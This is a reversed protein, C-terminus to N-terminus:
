WARVLRAEWRMSVLGVVVRRAGAELRFPIRRQDGAARVVVEGSVPGEGSARVLEVVYEGADSGLLALGEHRTSKVDQASIFARTPAGLWSVRRGAPDILAIDLDDNGGEWTAEVRLEGRLAQEASSKELVALEREARTRTQEDAAAFMDQAIWGAGIQGACRAAEALLKGDSQRMEAIAISHRCGRAPEGAWRHLRALRQHAAVDGPRVDLVSGLIRIAGERDGARAALDARATLAEPDLPDKESWREATAAARDLEGALAYLGFLEKVAGRRERNEDLAREAAAIKSAEAKAPIFRTTNIGAVREWIRRMPIMRPSPRRRTMDDDFRDGAIVSAPAAKPAPAPRSAPATAVAAPAPPGAASKAQGVGLEAPPEAYANEARKEEGAGGAPGMSGLAVGGLEEREQALEDAQGEGRSATSEIEEEGTWEPASRANNLGFAEFMAPSELVLLSTYRSAVNFRQSLAVAKQRAEASGDRELDAIRVAAYLRPVFANGSSGSARVQLPYRQEFPESGVTGRLTLTGGLEPRSLRAVVVAEGGAPITDLRAPAVETLGEPLEVRVDRLGMGYSAGLIAYAAEGLRQGPIYPLVVGGGGRALAGLADLDADAGIAVATLGGAAGPLADQVERSIHAPRIPGVTPTGDGIYVIRLALDSGVGVAARAARVAAGLDSGGEPTVGQLFRQVEAATQTGPHRLGGPLTRCTTDCALVTLQDLPDTESVVRQALAAARRYREGYMSRSADVVLAFARQAEQARRPLRPRLAIAVYGAEPGTEARMAREGREGDTAGPGGAPPPTAGPSALAHGGGAAEASGPQYAWTTVEDGRGPLAYEVVLDGSPVFDSAQMSLKEVGAEAGGRELAYGSTTVGFSPDHGRVQVDLAFRGVKSAGSPDHALPYVYRRVGGTPKVLQTYSLVVRRSGQRPIPFIRLEFRGGRQWELLAPDRWPGPVWIIEEQPLPRRRAANVIAGRWIKAAQEREVFAGEELRGDVELALREIQGDPPLPFRYIGELVEDTSNTFVEDVETRAVNDVIRVKAGHSTLRVAGAREEDSGPKRARLEGLGRVAAEQGDATQGSEEWALADGLAPAAATYPPLGPYIRGEEGARVVVSREERDVLKVAGRSVDVAAAGAAARLAFKTGLVEVRGVPVDFRAPVGAVHAVDAVVAGAALSARRDADPRLGLETSRDLALRTGDGLELYARTREDTRLLAGAPVHGGPEAATCGGSPACLQLGGAGGSARSIGAVRGEWPHGAALLAPGGPGEEDDGGRLLLVAGAAAAVLAVSAAAVIARRRKIWAALSVVVAAREAPAPTPAAAAPAPTPAAVAPAPKGAADGPPEDKPAPPQQAPGLEAEAAIETKGAPAAAEVAEPPHSPPAPKVPVTAEPAAPGAAGAEGRADLAALVRADLDAPVAFDSGSDAVLGQVREAEHRVDRCRDCEAIHEYLEDPATGELVDALSELVQECSVGKTTNQDSM